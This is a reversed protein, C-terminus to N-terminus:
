GGEGHPVQWADGAHPVGHAPLCGAGQAGRAAPHLRGCLAPVCGARLVFGCTHMVFGCVHANCFWVRTCFLVVCTHMIFGCMRAGQFVHVRSLMCRAQAGSCGSPRMLRAAARCSGGIEGLQCAQQAAATSSLCRSSPSCRVGPRRNAQVVCGVFLGGKGNVGRSGGTGWLWGGGPRWCQPQPMLRGIFFTATRPDERLGWWGGAKAALGMWRTGMWRVIVRGWFPGETVGAGDKHDGQWLAGAYVSCGVQVELAAHGLCAGLIPHLQALHPRLSDTSYAALTALITLASEMAQPPLPRLLTPPFPLSHLPPCLLSAFRHTHRPCSRCLVSCPVPSTPNYFTQHVPNLSLQM